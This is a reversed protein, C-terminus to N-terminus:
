KNLLKELRKIRSELKRKKSESVDMEDLLEQAMQALQDAIDDRISELSDVTYGYEDCLRQLVDNVMMDNANDAMGEMELEFDDESGYYSPNAIDNFVEELDDVLIPDPIRGENKRKRSEMVPKDAEKALAKFQSLEKKAQQLVKIRDDIIDNMSQLMAAASTMGARSCARAIAKKNSPDDELLSLVNVLSSWRIQDQDMNNSKNLDALKDIIAMLDM